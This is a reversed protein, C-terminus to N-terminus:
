VFIRMKSILLWNQLVTCPVQRPKVVMRIDSARGAEKLKLIHQETLPNLQNVIIVIEKANNKRFIRILRDILAEGCVKVLPKPLEVGEQQLRSGEGAAIIAFKM